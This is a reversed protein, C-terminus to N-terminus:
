KQIIQIELNLFPFFPFFRIPSVTELITKRQLTLVAINPYHKKRICAETFTFWMSM